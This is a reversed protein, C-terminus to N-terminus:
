TEYAPVQSPSNSSSTLGLAHAVMTRDLPPLNFRLQILKRLYEQGVASHDASITSDGAQRYRAEAASELLDLDAVIVTVVDHHALLQRAVQCMDLAKDAPCRELDDV